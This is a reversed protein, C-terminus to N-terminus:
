FIYYPRWIGTLETRKLSLSPITRKRCIYDYCFEPGVGDSFLKYPWHVFQLVKGNGAIFWVQHYNECRTYEHPNRNVTGM